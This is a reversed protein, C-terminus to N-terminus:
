NFVPAIGLILEQKQYKEIIRKEISNPLMPINMPQVRSVFSSREDNKLIRYSAGEGLLAALHAEVALVHHQLAATQFLREIKKRRSETKYLLTVEFGEVLESIPLILSKNMARLLLWQGFRSKRDTELTRKIFEAGGDIVLIQNLNEHYDPPRELGFRKLFRQEESPSLVGLLFTDWEQLLEALDTIELYKQLEKKSSVVEGNLAIDWECGLSVTAFPLCLLLVFLKM